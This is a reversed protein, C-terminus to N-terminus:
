YPWTSTTTTTTTRTRNGGITISLGGGGFTIGGYSSNDVITGNPYGYVPYPNVPYQYVPYANAPYGYNPYQYVPYPVGYVPYAPYRQVTVNPQPLMTIVPGGFSGGPLQYSYPYPYTEVYGGPAYYPYGYPNIAVQNVVRGGRRRNDNSRNDRDRADNNRNDGNRNDSARRDSERVESERDEVTRTITRNRSSAVPTTASSKVEGNATMETKTVSGDPNLTTWTDARACLPISLGLALFLIGKPQVDM